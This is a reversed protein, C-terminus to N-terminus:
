NKSLSIDRQLTEIKKSLVELEESLVKHNKQEKRVFSSFPSIADRIKINSNQIEDDFHSVLASMIRNRLDDVKQDFEKKVTVRRYPIICLGTAALASAGLVGTFDLLSVSLLAGMGLASAGAIAVAQMMSQQIRKSLINSEETKDYTEVIEHIDNGISRLLEKRTVEFNFAADSTTSKRSQLSNVIQKWQKTHRDVMWDIIDSVLGDIQSTTDKIVKVEFDSKMRESQMLLAINSLRLTSDLYSEGRERLRLLVNDVRSEQYKFDLSNVM